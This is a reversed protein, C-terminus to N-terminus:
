GRARLWGLVAARGLVGPDAGFVDLRSTVLTARPLLQAWGLAVALPHVPDDRLAAIGV